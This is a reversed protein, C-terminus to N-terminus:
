IKKFFETKLYMEWNKKHKAVIVLPDDTLKIKSFKEWKNINEWNKVPLAKISIVDDGSLLETGFADVVKQADQNDLGDGEIINWNEDYQIEKTM